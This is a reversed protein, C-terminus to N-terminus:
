SITTLCVFSMKITNSLYTKSQLILTESVWVGTLLSVNVEAGEGEIRVIGGRNRNRTWIFGQKELSHKRLKKKDRTM